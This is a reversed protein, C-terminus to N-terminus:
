NLKVSVNYDGVEYINYSNSENLKISAAVSVTGSVTNKYSLDVTVEIDDPSVYVLYMEDGRLKVNLSKTILEYSLNNPNNVKINDVVFDATSTGIHEVHVTAEDIGDVNVLDGPLNVSMQVSDTVLKKEDIAGLSIKTMPEVVGVEGKVRITPPDITMRSNKDNLYGYAYDADLPLSKYMYVPVTATVTVASMSVYTSTIPNGAEDVLKLGSVIVVSSSVQGLALEARACDITELVSEPGTVNVESLSLRIDSQGIEYGEALQYSTVDAKVPVTASSRNDLYVSLTNVSQSSISVGHPVTIKVPLTYRGAEDIDAIDVVATIDSATIKAVDSKKGVIKVDVVNNYGYYVSLPSADELITIPVSTFMQEHSPNDLSMVYLWMIFAIIVSIILLFIDFVGGRRKVGTGGTAQIERASDSENRKM